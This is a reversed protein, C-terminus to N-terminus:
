TCRTLIATKLSLQAYLTLTSNQRIRWNMTLHNILSYGVAEIWKYVDSDQFVWGHFAKDDTNSEDYHWKDVPYTQPVQGNKLQRVIEAAKKFNEICYSKEASEIKDQLALYQYPIMNERVTGIVKNWFPDDIKIENCTLHNTYNRKDM